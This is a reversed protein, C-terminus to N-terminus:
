ACARLLPHGERGSGWEQQAQASEADVQAIVRVERAREVDAQAVIAYDDIQHELRERASAGSPPVDHAANVLALLKEVARSWAPILDTSPNAREYRVRYLARAALPASRCGHRLMERVCRADLALLTSATVDFASADDFHLTREAQRAIALAGDVVHARVLSLGADAEM